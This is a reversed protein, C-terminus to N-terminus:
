RLQVKEEKWKNVVRKWNGIQEPTSSVVHKFLPPAGTYVTEENFSYKYSLDQRKISPAIHEVINDLVYYGDDKTNYFVLVMHPAAQYQYNVHSLFLQQAPIGAERLFFYKTIAYDECDAAGKTLAQIPSAWFDEQHWIALDEGQEMANNVWNNVLKLQQWHTKGKMSNLLTVTQRKVESVPKPQVATSKCGNATFALCIFLPIFLPALKMLQGYLISFIQTVRILCLKAKYM